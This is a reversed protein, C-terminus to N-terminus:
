GACGAGYREGTGADHSAFWYVADHPRYRKLPYRDIALTMGCCLFLLLAALAAIIVPTKKM